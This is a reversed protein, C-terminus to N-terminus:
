HGIDERSLKRRRKSSVARAAALAETQESSQDTVTPLSGIDDRFKRGVFDGKSNNSRASRRGQGIEEM